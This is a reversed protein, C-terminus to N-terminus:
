NEPIIGERLWEPTNVIRLREACSNMAVLLQFEKESILRADKGKCQLVVGEFELSTLNLSASGDVDAHSPLDTVTEWLSGALVLINDSKQRALLGRERRNAIQDRLLIYLAKM